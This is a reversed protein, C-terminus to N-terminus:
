EVYADAADISAEDKAYRITLRKVDLEFYRKDYCIGLYNKLFGKFRTGSNVNRRKYFHGGIIKKMGKFKIQTMSGISLLKSGRSSVETQMVM